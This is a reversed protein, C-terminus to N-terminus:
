RANERGRSCLVLCSLTILSEPHGPSLRGRIGIINFRVINDREREKNKNKERKRRSCKVNHTLECFSMLEINPMLRAVVYSVDYTTVIDERTTLMLAIDERMTLTIHYDNRAIIYEYLAFTEHM